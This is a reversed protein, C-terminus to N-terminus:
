RGAAACSVWVVRCVRRCQEGRSKREGHPGEARQGAGGRHCMYEARNVADSISRVKQQQGGPRRGEQGNM